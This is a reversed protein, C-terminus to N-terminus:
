VLSIHTESPTATISGMVKACAGTVGAVEGTRVGLSVPFAGGAGDLRVRETEGPTAAASAAADGFYVGGGGLGSGFDSLSSM